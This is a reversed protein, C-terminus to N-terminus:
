DKYQLYGNKDTTLDKIRVMNRKNNVVYRDKKIYYYYQKCLYKSPNKIYKFTSIDMLIAWISATESQKKIYRISSPDNM